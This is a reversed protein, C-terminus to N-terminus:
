GWCMTVRVSSRPHSYSDTLPFLAHVLRRRKAWAAFADPNWETLLDALDTLEPLTEAPTKRTRRRCSNM